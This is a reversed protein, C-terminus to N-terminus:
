YKNYIRHLFVAAEGRTTNGLPNVNDGSGVILGEKVVSAVSNVAYAAVLAKDAFKDLDSATGQVQLKNLMRLARETLVMMEQRTISVDPNFKNNGIGNTIGLMNAIGIEKYYYADRSIDDFNRDVRADVGLTRVMYYLFEARTINTQPAYEKESIGKLIGKSALVEIPKIAWVVSELDDFTKTVYVVAYRSFHTIAFTVTGTIPDYRGNPVEVVNGDGDIYWITIHEPNAKEQATPTYHISVKVPVSENHWPYPEGDVKLNIQIVPRNGIQNRIEEDMGSVDAQAITLSINEAGAVAEETLMNTPLTVAALESKIEIEKNIDTSSLSSAPLTCEYAKAGEVEPIAIVITKKDDIKEASNNFALTITATDIVVAAVGTNKDLKPVTTINGRSDEAPTHAPAPTQTGSGGGGGGGTSSARNVTITYTKTTTGDEATVVLTIINDGMNLSVFRPNGSAVDTGNVTLTAKSDATTPTVEISTESSVVSASYGIVAQNFAPSLTGASLALGSLNANDSLVAPIDEWIAYLTLNEEPMTVSAGPMYATGAGDDKTNWEKFRKGEPPTLSDASAATFIEEQIKDSEIPATGTGGNANYTVTYTDQVLVIDVLFTATKEEYTVTIVQGTSATSSDFGSINDITITLEETFSDNYTGTVVLGSIDLEDGVTYTLKTPPTTITISELTTFVVTLTFEKTQETGGAKSITATLTVTKNEDPMTVTGENTIVSVDDSVWSITTGNAGAEPLTLNRTVSGASDGEAFIIELVEKDITIMADIEQTSFAQWQFAPYTYNDYNRWTGPDAFDWGAFTAQQKMEETTKPQGKDTDSQGTVDSDYYSGAVTGGDKEGVLGGISGSGTVSGAAYSSTIHGDSYGALGGVTSGGTVDGVAYSETVEGGLNSGLLGGTHIGDGTVSVDTYSSSISGNYSNQGALGGISNRGNVVGTASSGTVEGNNIGVLSGTCDEGTVDVNVLWTNRIAANKTYGFLGVEGEGQRNISLNRIVNGNGDFSGTFAKTSDGFDYEGIPRWGAGDNWGGSGDALFTSLDIDDILVFHEHLHHGVNGLQWPTAVMYPTGEEGTGGAFQADTYETQWRLFPYGGNQEPNIGWVNILDWGTFTTTTQMQVTTRPKEGGPFDSPGAIDRNYYSDIVTGDWNMGVLGGISHYAGTVAGVAYSRTVTGNNYGVLGGVCSTFEKFFVGKVEGTAYSDAITGSINGGVLGGVFKEGIVPGTAHSNTITGGENTGVLGGVKFDSGTVTGSAYANTIAGNQIYGVLGGINAWIGGVNCISHSDTIEGGMSSGILGGVTGSGNVSGGASCDIITGSNNLGVLSGVYDKGTVDADVLHVYQVVASADIYGFLGQYDTGSRNIYLGSITHGEGDFTGTFPSDSTGIPLWGAGDNWGDGEESLYASLDINETLIFHKDKYWAGTVAALQEVTEIQFPDQSSGSGITFVSEETAIKAAESAASALRTATEKIRVRFEYTTGPDLGAFGTSDQWSGNNVNYEAGPIENLTIGTETRSALTPADPTAPGDAKAVVATPSSTVSGTAHNGDATVTINITEGIDAEVLLYTLATAGAIEVGGRKWQCSPM